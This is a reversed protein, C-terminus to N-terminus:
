YPLESEDIAPTEDKILRIKQAIQKPYRKHVKRLLDGIDDAFLIVKRGSTFTVEYQYM